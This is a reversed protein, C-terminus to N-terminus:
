LDENQVELEHGASVGREDSNMSRRHGVADETVAEM